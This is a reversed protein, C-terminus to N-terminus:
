EENVIERAEELTITWFDERTVKYSKKGHRLFPGFRGINLTINDDIKRPLSLIAVVDDITLRDPSKICKPLGFRKPKKEDKPDRTKEWELYYGYPGRKVFITDDLTPDKGVVITSNSMDVKENDGISKTFKCNPYNTCGLFAGYPGIKMHVDSGCLPCKRDPISQFIVDGIDNEVSNIVESVSLSSSDEIAKHFDHWFEDLVNERDKAGNSIKDLDEEMDATFEYQVYKAFFLKLFSTTVIGISQPVFTKKQLEVYGRDQIVNIITAYTSPRGIGLEELKKVLSAENFRAPPQTFHQEPELKSCSVTEDKDLLPLQKEESKDQEVNYEKLFGDFVMTSGTARFTAIDDAAVDVSVQDVLANEMQSAVARRWILDYLKMQEDSLFQKIKDPSKDFSTPRIAEHAEQANKTKTKFIRPTKPLYKDGYKKQVFERIGVIAENSMATSDTRMYTILGTMTGDIDIGEYLKQAIRMTNKASFGLKKVAEQQLSSTTFPAYPNRKVTKKEVNSIVYLANSLTDVINNAEEANKIDLKELKKGNFHTLSARFQGNKAIFDAHVTWYEESKFLKIEIERDVILRLAVSQVRGASKAGPLKKWLVPSLSYGVLYDLVRRAIYADVLNSDLQRPNQFADLVARKTIEHFVVRSINKKNLARGEELINLIHWSIAEGERDPDTALFLNDTNKLYKKIEAIQTKGKDSVQWVMAYHNKVDVSGSKPLLDRVHGYSAIVKYDSGLFTGLTKAKAPSEVVVLGKLM